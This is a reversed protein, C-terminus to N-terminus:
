WDVQWDKPVVRTSAKQWRRQHADVVLALSALVYLCAWLHNMHWAQSSWILQPLPTFFVAHWLSLHQENYYHEQELDIASLPPASVDPRQALGPLWRPLGHGSAILALLCTLLLNHKM